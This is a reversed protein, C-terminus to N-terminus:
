IWTQLTERMAQNGEKGERGGWKRGEKRGEDRGEERGDKKGGEGSGGLLGWHKTSGKRHGHTRM